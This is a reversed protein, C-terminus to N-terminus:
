ARINFQESTQDNGAVGSATISVSYEQGPVWSMGGSTACASPNLTFQIPGPNNAEAPDFDQATNDVLAFGVFNGLTQITAGSINSFTAAPCNATATSSTITTDATISVDYNLGSTDMVGSSTAEGPLPLREPRQVKLTLTGSGVSTENDGASDALMLGPPAPPPGTFTAGQVYPTSAFYPGVEMMSEATLGSGQQVGKVAILQGPVVDSPVNTGLPALVDAGFGGGKATSTNPAFAYPPSALSWPSGVAGGKDDFLTANACWSVTGCDVTMTVDSGTTDGPFLQGAWAAFNFIMNDAIAPTVPDLFAAMSSPSIGGPAYYSIATSEGSHVKAGITIASAAISSATPDAVNLVGNGNVDANFVNPVGSCDLEQGPATGASSGSTVVASDLPDTTTPCSESMAGSAPSSATVPGAGFSVAHARDLASGNALDRDNLPSPLWDGGLPSPPLAIAYSAASVIHGSVAGAVEVKGKRVSVTPIGHPVLGLNGAGYPRGNHAAARVADRVDISSSRSALFWTPVARVVNEGVLRGLSVNGAAKGLGIVDDICVPSNSKGCAPNKKEGMKKLVVPGVYRGSASVVQLTADVLKARYKAPVSVKFSTGRIVGTWGVGQASLLLVRGGPIGVISGSITIPHTTAAGSANAAMAFPVLLSAAVATVSVLRLRSQKWASM